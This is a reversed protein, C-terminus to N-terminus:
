SLLWREFEEPLPAEYCTEVDTDPHRLYIQHAHLLHRNPAD